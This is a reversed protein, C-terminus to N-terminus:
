KSNKRRRIAAGALALGGLVLGYTSPEPIPTGTITLYSTYLVWQNQGLATTSWDGANFASFAQDIVFSGTLDGTLKFTDGTTRGNQWQNSVRFVYDPFAFALYRNTDGFIAFANVTASTSTTLNTATITPLGQSYFSAGALDYANTQPNDLSESANARTYTIGMNSFWSFQELSLPVTQGAESVWDGTFSYSVLTGAGGNASSLTINLASTSQASASAAIFLAPLLAAHRMSSTILLWRMKQDIPYLYPRGHGEALKILWRVM